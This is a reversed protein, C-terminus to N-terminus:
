FRYGLHIDANFLVNRYDSEKPQRPNGNTDDWTTWLQPSGFGRITRSFGTFITLTFGSKQTWKKGLGFGFGLNHISEWNSVFNAWRYINQSSDAVYKGNDRDVNYYGLYGQAFIGQVGYEKSKNFYFRFYPTAMLNLRIISSNINGNISLTGGYSSNETFDKEYEIEYIPMLISKLAGFRIEQQKQNLPRYQRKRPLETGQGFSFHLNSLLLVVPIIKFSFKM